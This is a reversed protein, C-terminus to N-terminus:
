FDGKAKLLIQTTSSNTLLIDVQSVFVHQPRVM